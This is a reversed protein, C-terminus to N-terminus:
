PKAADWFEILREALKTKHREVLKVVMTDPSADAHHISMRWWQEGTSLGWCTGQPNRIGRELGLMIYHSQCYMKVVPKVLETTTAFKHITEDYFSPLGECSYYGDAMRWLVQAGLQDTTHCHPHPGNQTRKWYIGDHVWASIPRLDTSEPGFTSPKFPSKTRTNYDIEHQTPVKEQALCELFRKAFRRLETPLQMSGAHCTVPKFLNAIPYGHTKSMHGYVKGDRYVAPTDIRMPTTINM